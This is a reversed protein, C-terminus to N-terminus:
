LEYDSTDSLVGASKAMETLQDIDISTWQVEFVSYLLDLFQLNIVDFIKDHTTLKMSNIFIRLSDLTVKDRFLRIDRNHNSSILYNKRDIISAHELKVNM